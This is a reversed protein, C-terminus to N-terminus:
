SALINIRYEGASPATKPRTSGPTKITTSADAASAPKSPTKSGLPKKSASDNLKSVKTTGLFLFMKNCPILLVDYGVSTGTVPKVKNSPTSSSSVLGKFPNNANQSVSTDVNSNQNETDM